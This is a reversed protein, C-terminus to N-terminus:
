SLAKKILAEQQKGHVSAYGTAPSASESRSVCESIESDKSAFKTKIFNWAGMNIPEEQCWIIKCLKYKALEKDILDQPFPYLQEIRIIAVSSINQAQRAEILDYYIKGTCLIVKTVSSPSLDDGIVEKFYTGDTIEDVKSVALKNRFISKPSMIILPKRLKRLQQRRLIHFINAPTTPYAIIMNEEACLQLFRELRASSHEPGQGEYSHPLLLVIGSLKLWKTEMSSLFQDFIIQAGNSFDGFQAEWIVLSKPNYMSYGMEFGLVAFESLNSDYVEYNATKSIKSLPIFKSGNVQDRLVSHRHSFTGRGADQGVLRVPYGEVLLSAFALQEGSAWDIENNEFSELRAQFLKNLKANLEFGEPLLMLQKLLNELDSKNVGTALSKDKEDLFRSYNAWIGKLDCSEPIYNKASEFANNLKEHFDKVMKNYIDDNSISNQALKEQYILGPTKKNKIINYMVPQTYMPEDGENHGYKRYCIIELVADKKFKARFRTLLQAAKLAAEADDGNVHIIPAGIMKAVETAYRSAKHGDRPNATFGVQNNVVIHVIGGIDFPDLASMALSEAVVGQGCFAADGHMLIALSKKRELDQAIDQAARTNGAVVPNVAELHSPNCALSLHILKGDIEVDRTYGMHYKVDGSLGMEPPIAYIGMFEGFLAEYPKGLIKALTNLRGRHAMGIVVNNIDHSISEKIIEKLSIISTDGGEVSFRKAGPFKKHIFQEFESVEILDQLINLKSSTPLDQIYIEEFNSYLWNKEEKNSIHEFEVGIHSTYIALKPENNTVEIEELTKPKDLGLPDLKAAFHGYAKLNRYSSDQLQSTPAKPAAELMENDLIVNTTEKSWSAKSRLVQNKEFFERWEETVLSPSRLFREHMQEIYVANSAFLYTDSFFKETM